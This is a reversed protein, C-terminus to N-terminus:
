CLRPAWVWYVLTDSTRSSLYESVLGSHYSPCSGTQNSDIFAEEEPATRTNFSVTFLFIISRITGQHCILHKIFFLGSSQSRTRSTSPQSTANTVFIRKFFIILAPPTTFLSIHVLFSKRLQAKLSDHLEYCLEGIPVM